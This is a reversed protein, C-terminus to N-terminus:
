LQLLPEPSPLRESAGERITKLDWEKLHPPPNTGLLFEHWTQWPLFWQSSLIGGFWGLEPLSDLVSLIFLHRGPTAAAALVHVCMHWWYGGVGCVCLKLVM